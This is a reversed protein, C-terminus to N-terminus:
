NLTMVDVKLKNMVKESTNGRLTARLGTRAKTGLIVLDAGVKEAVEAIIDEPKGMDRHINELPIDVLRQVVSRDPFDESDKYANVVHFEAGYYEALLYGKELVKLNLEESLPDSSQLNVAALISDRKVETGLRVIEVPIEAQRLLSWKSDTLGSKHEASAESMLIMEAGSRKAADMISREWDTTWFVESIFDAGIERLPAQMERIWERGVVVEWSIESDAKDASEFGIFLHIGLPTERAKSAIKVIREM